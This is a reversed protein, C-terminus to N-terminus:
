IHILSLKQVEAKRLDEQLINIKENATEIDGNENLKCIENLDVIFSAKEDEPSASKSSLYFGGSFFIVAISFLVTVFILKNKM